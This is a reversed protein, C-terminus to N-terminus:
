EEPCGFAVSVVETMESPLWPVNALGERERTADYEAQSARCFAYVEELLALSAEAEPTNLWQRHETVDDMTAVRAALAEDAEKFRTFVDLAAAHQEAVADPPVLADIGNLFEARIALRDDWYDLAGELSPTQSEWAADLVTFQAEMRGVLTEAQGAYESLTLPGGGCAALIAASLCGGVVRLMRSRRM